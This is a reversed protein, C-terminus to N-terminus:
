AARSPPTATRAALVDLEELVGADDLEELDEPETTSAADAPLPMEGARLADVAAAAGARREPEASSEPRDPDASSGPRPCVRAVEAM